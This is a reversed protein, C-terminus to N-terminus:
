DTLAYDVNQTIDLEYEEALANQDCDQLLVDYIGAPLLFLRSLGPDIFEEDGLDDEGLEPRRDAICLLLM